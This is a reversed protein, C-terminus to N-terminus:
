PRNWGCLDGDVFTLMRQIQARRAEIMEEEAACSCMPWGSGYDRQPDGSGYLADLQAGKLKSAGANLPIGAARWGDIWRTVLVAM